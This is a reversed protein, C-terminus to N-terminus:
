LKSKRANSKRKKKSKALQHTVDVFRLGMIRGMAEMIADSDPHHSAFHGTQFHPQDKMQSKLYIQLLSDPNALTQQVPFGRFVFM